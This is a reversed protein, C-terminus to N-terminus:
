AVVDQDPQIKEITQILENNKYLKFLKYNLSNVFNIASDASDFLREIYKSETEDIYQGVLKFIDQTSM